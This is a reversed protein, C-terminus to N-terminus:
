PKRWGLKSMVMDSVAAPGLWGSFVALGVLIRMDIHFYDGCSVVVMSLGVATSLEVVVRAVAIKGDPGTWSRGRAISGVLAAFSMAGYEPLWSPLEM